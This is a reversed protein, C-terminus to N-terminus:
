SKGFISFAEQPQDTCKIRWELAYECDAGSACSVHEKAMESTKGATRLLFHYGKPCLEESKQRLSYREFGQVPENYFKTLYFTEEDMKQVHATSSCGSLFLFSALGLILGPYILVSKM